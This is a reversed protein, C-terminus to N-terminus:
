KIQIIEYKKSGLGIKEAYNLGVQWDIGPFVSRFRDEEPNEIHGIKSNLIVPSKNVLDACAMDLAVPDFSSLIGIDQVIPVDNFNWCDCNPSVDMVFNIHYVKKGMSAAFAYEMMKEQLNASNFKAQSADYQCVAICQGCGSCKSYNIEAINEKDLQIANYACNEVCEGCGTCNERKIFPQSDSHMELKGGVSGSGMGLNKLAGGFGAMDHCKFHNLTIIIDSSAIASAIKATKCHKLNIEIEKYETGKLGDAIIINCGTTLQSFGNEAASQIHDVANSRRGKYLTNTDTLFPVGEKEKVIGAVVSAYNPRLFALNGPEGFHIKLAVLKKTFDIENMGGKSLLMKLKDLINQKSSSHFDIFYVKSM